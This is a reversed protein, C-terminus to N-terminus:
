MYPKCTVRNAQDRTEPTLGSIQRLRKTIGVYGREPMDDQPLKKAPRISIAGVALPFLLALLLVLSQVLPLVGGVAQARNPGICNGSPCGGLALGGGLGAGVGIGTGILANRGRHGKSKISIRHVSQRSITQEGTALSLVIAEDTVSHFNGRISKTGIQAVQIEQGVSLQKLKDWNAQNKASNDGGHAPNMALGFSLVILGICVHSMVKRMLVRRSLTKLAGIPIQIFLCFYSLRAWDNAM